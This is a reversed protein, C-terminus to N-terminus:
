IIIRYTQEKRNKLRIDIIRGGDNRGHVPDPPLDHDDILHDRVAEPVLITDWFMVVM